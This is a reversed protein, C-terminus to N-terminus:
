IARLHFYPVNNKATMSSEPRACIPYPIPAVNLAELEEGRSMYPCNYLNLQGYRVNITSTESRSVLCLSTVDLETFHIAVTANHADQDLNM